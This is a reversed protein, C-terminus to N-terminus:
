LTQRDPKDTKGTIKLMHPVPHTRHRIEFNNRGGSKFRSDCHKDQRRLTLDYFAVPWLAVSQVQVHVNAKRTCM